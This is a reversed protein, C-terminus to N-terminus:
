KLLLVRHTDILSGQSLRLLYVGSPLAGGAPGGAIWRVRHEGAARIGRELLAVSRGGISFVELRVEGPQDLHYVIETAPNFPNPFNGVLGFGAPVLEEALATEALHSTFSATYIYDGTTGFNGNAANGAAYFTVEEPPDAPATWDFSWSVPGDQTGNFTGQSTHKAYDVDGAQDVQTDGSDDETLSGDALPSLEFGWRSQGPDELTVTIAYTAGAQYEAPGEIGFTGDGSNLPFSSHCNICTGEGPAGTLENPPGSSYAAAALPFWATAAVALILKRM